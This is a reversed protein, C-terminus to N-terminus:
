RDLFTYVELLVLLNKTGYVLFFIAESVSLFLDRQMTQQCRLNSEKATMKLVVFFARNSMWENSFMLRYNVEPPKGLEGERALPLMIVDNAADSAM